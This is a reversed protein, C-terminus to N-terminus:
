LNDRLHKFKQSVLGKTLIDALQQYTPLYRVLISGSAVRERVFHFDVALHKTRSHYIPNVTLYLASINDCYVLPPDPLYIHLDRLLEQVWLIDAVTHAMARYEVETSSRSVTHQKKSSWSILNNGFFLLSISASRRTDPCGAWDADSYATLSISNSPRLLLCHHLTGAVYRLIRKVESFHHSQPSQIHQSASNIAYCINPRTLTLYQLAGVLNRYLSNDVASSLSSDLSTSSSVPTAVPKCGILGARDLIDRAYKAQSLHLCASTRSVRVGLFFYLDGLDNISFEVHLMDSFWSLLSSDSGILIIDDVYLLLYLYREGSKYVFLSSDARSNSFGHSILFHGFRAFWARPAQKLGYLAKHLKCVHHPYHSDQFGHPQEMYVTDTLLSNLFANKVDFQRIHWGRSLAISLVLRITAPRVVPSFTEGYDVGYSQTYGKAVLCVKCRDLSGDSKQKVRYVWKCGVVNINPPRPILSWTHNALLANFEDDM